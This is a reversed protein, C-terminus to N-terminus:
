VRYHKSILPTKVNHTARHEAYASMADDLAAMELMTLEGRQSWIAALETGVQIYADRLEDCVPCTSVPATFTVSRM